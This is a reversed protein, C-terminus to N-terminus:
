RYEQRAKILDFLEDLREFDAPLVQQLAQKVESEKLPHGVWSNDKTHRV